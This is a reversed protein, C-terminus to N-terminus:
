LVTLPYLITERSILILGPRILVEDKNELNNYYSQFLDKLM